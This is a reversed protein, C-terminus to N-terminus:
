GSLPAPPPHHCVFALSSDVYFSFASYGPLPLLHASLLFPKDWLGDIRSTVPSFLMPVRLAEFAVRGVSLLSVVPSRPSPVSVSM